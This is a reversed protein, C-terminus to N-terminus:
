SWPVPYRPTAPSSRATTSRSGWCIVGIESCGSSRPPARGGGQDCWGVLAFRTVREVLTVLYGTGAAGVVLDGEWHRVKIRLEVVAPRRSGAGAPDGRRGGSPAASSAGASRARWIRGFTAERRRTQTCMSTSRRRACARVARWSRGARLDGRLGGRASSRRRTVGFGSGGRAPVSAREVAKPAGSPAPLGAARHKAESRPECRSKHRGLQQAIENIGKRSADAYIQNREGETVREYSM